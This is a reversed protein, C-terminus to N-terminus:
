MKTKKNRYHLSLLAGIYSFISLGFTFAAVAALDDELEEPLWPFVMCTYDVTDNLILWYTALRAAMRKFIMFRVYLLAEIAMGLHSAILMYHQWELTDGQAAGGVIMAVAWIGYKMSTVVALAEIGMRIATFAKSPKGAHPFLLYLLSLTFFLSATPSDPVFILQWLPHHNWTYELQNGYWMYGYVTGAANVLFLLWLM